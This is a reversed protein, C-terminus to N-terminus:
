QFMPNVYECLVCATTNIHLVGEGVGEGVGVGGAEVGAGVAVGYVEDEVVCGVGVGYTAGLCVFGVGVGDADGVGDGVMLGSVDEAGTFWFPIEALMTSTAITMMMIAAM